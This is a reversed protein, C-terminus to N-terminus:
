TTGLLAYELLQRWLPALTAKVIIDALVFGIGM